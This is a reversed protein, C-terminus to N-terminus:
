VLKEWLIESCNQYCFVMEWKSVWQLGTFLCRETTKLWEFHCHFLSFKQLYKTTSFYNSNKNIKFSNRGKRDFLFHEFIILIFTVIIFNEIDFITSFSIRNTGMASHIFLCSQRSIIVFRGMTDSHFHMERSSEM